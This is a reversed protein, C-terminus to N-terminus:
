TRWALSKGFRPSSCFSRDGCIGLGLGLVGGKQPEGSDLCSLSFNEFFLKRFWSCVSLFYVGLTSSTCFSDSKGSTGEPWGFWFATKRNEDGVCRLFTCALGVHCDYNGLGSVREGAGGPSNM